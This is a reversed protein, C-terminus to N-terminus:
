LMVEQEITVGRKVIELIADQFLPFDGQLDQLKELYEGTRELGYEAYTIVEEKGMEYPLLTPFICQLRQFMRFGGLDIDGWFFLKVKELDASIKEFFKGKSPSFYGGHYIVAVQEKKNLVFADYNTKNEIFYLEEVEDLHIKRLDEVSQGTLALGSEGVAGVDLIGHTFELRFNGSIYFVEGRPTIGVMQLIEKDSMSGEKWLLSVEPHYTKLIKIFDTLYQQELIKSHHFVQISFSRLTMGCDPFRDFAYVLACLGKGHEEGKQFFSPLKWTREMESLLEKKWDMLWGCRLDKLSSAIFLSVQEVVKWPPMKGLIGYAKEVQELNLSVQSLVKQPVEWHIVILDEQELVLAEEVFLENSSLSEWDYGTMEKKEKSLFVRRNSEKPNRFHKSKEYKKILDELLQTRLEM